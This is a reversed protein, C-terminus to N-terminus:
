PTKVKSKSPMKQPLNLLLLASKIIKNFVDDNLNKNLNVLYDKTLKKTVTKYRFVHNIKGNYVELILQLYSRIITTLHHFSYVISISNFFM